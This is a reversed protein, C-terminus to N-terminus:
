DIHLWAIGFMLWGPWAVAIILQTTASLTKGRTRNGWVVLENFVIGILTYLVVWGAVSM